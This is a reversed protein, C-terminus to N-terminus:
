TVIRFFTELEKFDCLLKGLLNFFINWYEATVAEKLFCGKGTGNWCFANLLTSYIVDVIQLTGLTDEGPTSVFRGDFFPKAQGMTLGFSFM